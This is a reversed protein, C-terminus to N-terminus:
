WIITGENQVTIIKSKGDQILTTTAPTTTGSLQTFIVTPFTNTFNSDAAVAPNAAVSEVAAANACVSGKFVLYNPALYCVGWPSQLINNMSRSRADQLFSVIITQDSRVLTGRLTEASMFLGLMIIITFLTIVTLLEILTFGRM